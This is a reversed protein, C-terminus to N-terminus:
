CDASKSRGTLGIGIQVLARFPRVTRWYRGIPSPFLMAPDGGGLTLVKFGIQLAREIIRAAPTNRLEGGFPVYCWECRMNCRHAFNLVIRIPKPSQLKRPSM